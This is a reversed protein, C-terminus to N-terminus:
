LLFVSLRYDINCVWNEVKWKVSDVHVHSLTVVQGEGIKHIDYVIFLCAM